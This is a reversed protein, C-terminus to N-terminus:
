ELYKTKSFPNNTAFIIEENEHIHLLAGARTKIIDISIFTEKSNTHNFIDNWYYGERKLKYKLNKIDSIKSNNEM